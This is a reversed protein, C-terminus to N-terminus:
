SDDLLSGSRPRRSPRLVAPQPRHEAPVPYLAAETLSTVTILPGSAIRDLLDDQKPELEIVM